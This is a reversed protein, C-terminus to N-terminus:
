QAGSSQHITVKQGNVIRHVGDAVILKRKALDGIIYARHQESYAVRVSQAEIIYVGETQTPSLTYISWLGRLGDTLATIPVWYGQQQITQPLQLYVMTGPVADPIVPTSLRVMRTRTLISIDAGLTILKAPYTNQNVSLQLNRNKELTAALKLPVGVHAELGENQLLQFVPSGANVVTGGAALRRSVKANFPAKITSKELRSDVSDVNIRLSQLQANLSKKQSTLEDIQQVSAYGDQQLSELRKLNNIVLDIRAQTEAQQAQLRRRELKLLQTDLKALLQGQRVNEGSNVYVKAIKGALEFGISTEQAAVLTGALQRKIQYSEQLQLPASNVSKIKAQQEQPSNASVTSFGCFLAIFSLTLLSKKMTIADKIYQVQSDLIFQSHQTTWATKLFLKPLLLCVHNTFHAQPTTTM